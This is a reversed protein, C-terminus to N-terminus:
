VPQTLTKKYTDLARNRAFRHEVIEPLYGPRYGPIWKKIYIFDPDFRKTQEAPNFIRFYPAADCGCGAAWQWNGNNSSLEYDILKEAFYAEGMRWDILLHKTLFSAVIMRVRNHMFGTQNLEKMGADVIAYGTEGRCWATFEKEDNRWNINDYRSKFCGSVVYPFHFLIMMFFERWILENLWQENLELAAKVLRRVSVTGFRLHVSLRSTGNVSPINRTNDYNQILSPDIDLSNFDNPTHNFGIQKLAPFRFPGSKIFSSFYDESNYHPPEQEALKQKWIKSYPTFITYPDGNTKVVDSKEFVVQDKFSSFGIGSKKLLSAIENDRAVAYPEYDHNTFVEKINFDAILSEFAGL